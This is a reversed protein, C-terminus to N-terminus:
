KPYRELMQEMRELMQEMQDSIKNNLLGQGMWKMFEIREYENRWMSSWMGSM